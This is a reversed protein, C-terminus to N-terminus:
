GPKVLELSIVITVVDGLMNKALGYNMGFKSREIEFTTEYGLRGGRSDNEGTKAVMMTLPQVVGAIELDGTVEYRDGGKGAIATSKFTLDPNEKGNFFDPGELHRDRKEDRTHISDVPITIEVAGDQPAAPDLSVSGTIQEFGAYFYSVNAHKIKFMVSSHSTDIIWDHDGTAAATTEPLPTILALLVPLLFLAKM